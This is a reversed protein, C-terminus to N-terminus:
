DTTAANGGGEGANEIAEKLGDTRQLAIDMCQVEDLVTQIQRVIYAEGDEHTYPALICIDEAKLQRNAHIRILADIQEDHSKAIYYRNIGVKQESYAETLLETFTEVPQGLATASVTARYFTAEGSDFRM